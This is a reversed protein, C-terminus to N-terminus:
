KKLAEALEMGMKQAAALSEADPDWTTRYGEHILELGAAKLGENIVKVSEGSWGYSGFAAAKKQKFGLEHIQSLISAIPSLVGRNVTPSGVLVLKSRFIDTLADNKDGKGLAHVKVMLTPDAKRMGDAIATALHQTGQWMTDYVITAQHEQYAKSWKMYADLIEPIQKRWIIGHAPCILSIPLNMALIEELKKEVMNSFPTLINAYYKQTEYWLEGQDVLDDYFMESAYHQGFGDSSFLINEETLYSFITDPWHLMRAEIFQIKKKGLDLVDGTKVPVFNWNEHYQGTLSKVGNASCYIPVNPIEQMLLPLAGSHDTEGHNSIIYDIENLDIEKKLHDVFERAFPGWVTDILVTKEDRVLYANYSSGRQTSLEEGHFRRLAWDIKGVWTVSETIKVSM